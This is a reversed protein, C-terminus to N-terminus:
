PEISKFREIKESYDMAVGEFVLLNFVMFLLRM